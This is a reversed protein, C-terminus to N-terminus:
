RRARSTDARVDVAEITCPIQVGCADDQVIELREDRSV